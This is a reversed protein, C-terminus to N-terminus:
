VYFYHYHLGLLSMELDVDVELLREWDTLTLATQLFQHCFLGLHSMTQDVDVKLLCEWDTLALALALQSSSHHHLGPHSITLDADGEM